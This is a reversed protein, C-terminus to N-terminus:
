ATATFQTSSYRRRRHVQGARRAIRLMTGLVGPPSEGRPSPRMASAGEGWGEGALPPPLAAGGPSM